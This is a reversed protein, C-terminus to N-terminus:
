IQFLSFRDPSYLNENIVERNKRYERDLINKLFQASYPALTWGLFGHGTNIYLNDINKYKGILPLGDPSVFRNCIKPKTESCLNHLYPFAPILRNYNNILHQTNPNIFYGYTIRLKDQHRTYFINNDGDIFTNSNNETLMDNIPVMNNNINGNANIDVDVDIDQLNFTWSLGCIKLLPLYKYKVKSNKRIKFRNSNTCLIFIDAEIIRNDDTKVSVVRNNVIEFYDVKTDTLIEVNDLQKLRDSIVNSLSFTNCTYDEPLYINNENKITFTSDNMKYGSIESFLKKKNKFSMYLGKYLGITNFTTKNNSIFSDFEKKSDNKITQYKKPNYFLNNITNFVGWKSVSLLNSINFKNTQKIITKIVSVSSFAPKLRSFFLTGANYYSSERCLERNKDILTIKKYDNRLYYATMLGNIGGGVICIHNNSM